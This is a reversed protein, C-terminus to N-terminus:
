VDKDEEDEKMLKDLISEKPKDDKEPIKEMNKLIDISQKYLENSNKVGDIILKSIEIHEELVRFDKEMLDNVLQADINRNHDIVEELAARSKRFDDEFKKLLEEKKM